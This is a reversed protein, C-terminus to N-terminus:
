KCVVSENIQEFGGCDNLISSNHHIDLVVCVAQFNVGLIEFYPQKVLYM